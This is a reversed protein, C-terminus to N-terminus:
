VRVPIESECPVGVQCLGCGYGEFGYHETVYARSRDLHAKCAVKDHGKPSLAGAPCRDICARCSGKSFFLCYARHDTYPRPSPPLALRVVVSGARMAKGRPTILGDCLGFTGLGAAYAAHRESWTSAYIYEESDRTGWQATEVPAVAPYGAATLRAAVQLRLQHNFQEGYVRTRAWRQAPYVTQARQEHKTAATQPLIWSIVTLAEPTVSADPFTQAFAEAPTWHFPGVVTKYQEWVPDAGNAFAILPQDWAKEPEALRMDNEPADWLELILDHVWGATDAAVM